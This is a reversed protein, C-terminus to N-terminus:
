KKTRQKKGIQHIRVNVMTKGIVSNNMMKLFDKQFDNRAKMRLKTNIDIFLDLWATQNFETVKHIKETKAQYLEKRHGNIHIVNKTDQLNCVLKISNDINMREPLYPIDSPVKQLEKPFVANVELIYGKDSNKNYDQMFDESFKFAYYRWKFDNSHLKQYMAWGYFISIWMYSAHHSQVLIM